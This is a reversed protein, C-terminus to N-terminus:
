DLLEVGKALEVFRRNLDEVQRALGDVVPRLKQLNEIQGELTKVREELERQRHTSLTEDDM